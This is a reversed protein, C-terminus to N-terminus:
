SILPLNSSIPYHKYWSLLSISSLYESDLYYAQYYIMILNIDRYKADIYM